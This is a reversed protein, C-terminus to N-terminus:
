LGARHETINAKDNNKNLENFFNNYILIKIIPKSRLAVKSIHRAPLQILPIRLDKSSRLWPTFKKKLIYLNKSEHSRSRSLFYQTTLMGLYFDESM